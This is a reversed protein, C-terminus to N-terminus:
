GAFFQKHTEVGSTILEALFESSETEVLYSNGEITVKINRGNKGQRMEIVSIKEPNILIDKSIKILKM